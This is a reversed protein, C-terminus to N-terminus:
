SALWDVLAALGASTHDVTRTAVAEGAADTVNVAHHASGWDIGVFWQFEEERMM